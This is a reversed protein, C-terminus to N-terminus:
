INNEQKGPPSCLAPLQLGSSLSNASRKKKKKAIMFELSIGSLNQALPLCCLLPSSLQVLDKPYEQIRCHSCM